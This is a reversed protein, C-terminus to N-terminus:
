QIKNFLIKINTIRITICINLEHPFAFDKNKKQYFYIYFYLKILVGAGVAKFVFTHTM